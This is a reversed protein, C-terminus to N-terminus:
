HLIASNLLCCSFFVHAKLDSHKLSALPLATGEDSGTKQEEVFERDNHELLVLTFNRYLPLTKLLLLHVYM